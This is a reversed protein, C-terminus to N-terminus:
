RWRPVEVPPDVLDVLGTGRRLRDELDDAPCCGRAPWREGADAVAEALCEAGPVRDLVLAADHLLTTAAAALGPHGPGRQAAEGWLHAVEAVAREARDGAEEDTLLAVIAAVATDALGAPLSDLWRLELWGRPRVPPFLTTCHYTLDELEPRRGAIGEDIWQGFTITEEVARCRDADDHLLMLNADLVYGAWDAGLEGDRLASRTRTHDIAGWNALRQSRHDRDPSCAFAAALAPGIRHALGWRRDPETGEGSDVNVQISASGCMMRRGWPGGLDFYVEMADYRPRRLTRVPDRFPDAGAGLMGIGAMALSERLVAGDVRLATLAEIWPTFPRTALEVQGGPEVTVLSDHPLRAGAEVAAEIEEPRVHRNPEALVFTHWEQEV